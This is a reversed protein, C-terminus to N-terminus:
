ILAVPLRTVIHLPRTRRHLLQYLQLSPQSSPLRTKKPGIISIKTGELM